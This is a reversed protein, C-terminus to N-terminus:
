RGQLKQRLKWPGEAQHSLRELLVSKLHPVICRAFEGKHRTHEAEHLMDALLCSGRYLNSTCKLHLLSIRCAGADAVRGCIRWAQLAASEVVDEAVM